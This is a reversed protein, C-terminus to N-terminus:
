QPVPCCPGERLGPCGCLVRRPISLLLCPARAKLDCVSDKGKREPIWLVGPRVVAKPPQWHVVAAYPRERRGDGGVPAPASVLPDASTQVSGFPGAYAGLAFTWMPVLRIPPPPLGTAGVRSPGYVTFQTIPLLYHLLSVVHSCRGGQRGCPCLGGGVM